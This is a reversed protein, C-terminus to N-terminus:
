NGLVSYLMAEKGHYTLNMLASVALVFFYVAIQFM